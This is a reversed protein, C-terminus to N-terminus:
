FSFGYGVLAMTSNNTYNLTHNAQVGSISTVPSSSQDDYVSYNVEGFLFINPDIAYKYGVGVTYGKFNITDGLLDTRSSALGFKAYALGDNGIVYGPALFFNYANKEMSQGLIATTNGSKLTVDQKPSAIMINYEFGVGLRVKPNIVYNYGMAISEAFNYTKGVNYDGLVKVSNVTTTGSAYTSSGNYGVGIQGFLGSFPLKQAYSNLSLTLLSVLVIKTSLNKM